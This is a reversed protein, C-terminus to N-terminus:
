KQCSALWAERDPQFQGGHRVVVAVQGGESINMQLGVFALADNLIPALPASGAVCSDWYWDLKEGAVEEVVQQYDQLTYGKFPEGFRTWMLRMVDDLSQSHNSKKRLFLDLILAVLAGKHYVSVKRGPIGREYGDLWLDYSSELLSQSAQNSGEFHRKMYVELEKIYEDLGFVGSRKLFLDGYYTTCGEAVFCTNFYNERTFDYPLLELPRIRIVNWAHFLEHASVGLLDTHLEDGEADPGLVVMTSNRHEVGHYYPTPLILNLFHYEREPFSGMTAIQEATFRRFDYLIREWNPKLAGHMWVYFDVAGVKYEVKQLTSSALLPSDVLAYFDPALLTNGERKLGTAIRYGQPLALSVQYPENIRGEVYMAFNIFNLYWLTDDVYSTGANQVQAFYRYRVIVKSHGEPLIRWRDKSVKGIFLKSGDEALAEIKQINKAFNQIEYRGPRWAPLQIEIEPEAVQDISWVIDIFHSLPDEASIHYHM